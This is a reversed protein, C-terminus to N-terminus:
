RGPNCADAFKPLPVLRSGGCKPCEGPMQPLSGDLWGAIAGDLVVLPHLRGSPASSGSKQTQIEEIMNKAPQFDKMTM